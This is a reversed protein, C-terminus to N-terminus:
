GGIGQVVMTIGSIITKIGVAMIFLQMVRSLVFLVLEGFIKEIIDAGSFMFHIILFVVVCSLTSSIIGAEQRILLVGALSGPGVLMPFAMPIIGQKIEEKETLEEQPEDKKKHKESFLLNKLAVVVLIIGGAIKVEKMEVRFFNHMMFSGVVAFVAMISFGTVVIMKFLKKRTIKGMDETLGIFLPVNGFPNLIAIMTMANIFINIVYDM